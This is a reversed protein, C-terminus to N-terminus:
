RERAPHFHEDDEEESLDPVYDSDSDRDGGWVDHDSSSIDHDVDDNAAVTEPLLHQEAPIQPPGPPDYQFSSSKMKPSVQTGSIITM